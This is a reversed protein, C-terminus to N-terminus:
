FGYILPQCAQFIVITLHSPWKCIPTPLPPRHPHAPILTRHDFNSVAMDNVCEGATAGAQLEPGAQTTFNPDFSLIRLTNIGPVTNNSILLAARDVPSSWDFRGSRIFVGGGVIYGTDYIPQQMAIGQDTLDFPLVKM